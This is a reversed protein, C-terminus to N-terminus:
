NFELKDGFMDKLLDKKNKETNEEEKYVENILIKFNSNFYQNAIQTLEKLNSRAQNLKTKESGDIELSLVGNEFSKINLDKIWIGWFGKNSIIEDVMINWQEIIKLDNLGNGLNVSSNNDIIDSKQNKPLNETVQSNLSTNEIKRNEEIKNPKPSIHANINNSINKVQTFDSGLLQELKKELNEIRSILMNRDVQRLLNIITMLGIARTQSSFKLKRDAELLIEISDSLESLDFGQSQSILKQVKEEDVGQINKPSVKALILNEYHQILSNVLESSGSDEIIKKALDISSNEDKKAIEDVLNFVYVEDASGISASVIDATIEGDSFALVQDLLSQADRLAGDAARAILATADNDIKVGLDDTILRISKAIDERQIRRFDFRQCRSLITQPIKEIETTALIFILHSPPEEMIKLLANFGEKTLMHVEDIIYVKYKLSAPPFIVQDRLERIDDIGRNSAADMEVVDMTSQNIIAKCNECENCPNGDIPNLCNVARAMIKACSTKGTGRTGTFIYAHGIKNQNVQNKLINTVDDQGIVQTFTKPRYRRYIAQYM